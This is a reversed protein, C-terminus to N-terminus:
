RPNPEFNPQQNKALSGFTGILAIVRGTLETRRQQGLENDSLLEVASYLAQTQRYPETGTLGIQGAHHRSQRLGHLIRERPMTSTANSTWLLDHGLWFVDAVNRWGGTTVADDTGVSVIATAPNVARRQFVFELSLVLIVAISAVVLKSIFSSSKASSAGQEQEVGTIGNARVSVEPQLPLSVVSNALISVHIVETPNLSPASFRLVDDELKGDIPLSGPGTIRYKEITALPIRISASLGEAASQGENAVEVQYIGIGKGQGEFPVTRPAEYTLKAERAFIVHLLSSGLVTVLVSVIAAPLAMRWNFSSTGNEM